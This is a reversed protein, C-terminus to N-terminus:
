RRRHSEQGCISLVCSPNECEQAYGCGVPIHYVVHYCKTVYVEIEGRCNFMKERWEALNFLWATRHETGQSLSPSFYSASVMFLQRSTHKWFGIGNPAYPPSQAYVGQTPASEWQQGRWLPARQTIARQDAQQYNQRPPNGQELMAGFLDQARLPSM